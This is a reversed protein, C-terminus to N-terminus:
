VENCHRKSFEDEKESKYTRERKKGILFRAIDLSM